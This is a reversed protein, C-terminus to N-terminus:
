FISGLLNSAKKLNYENMWYENRIDMYVYYEPYGCKNFITFIIKDKSFDPNLGTSYEKGPIPCKQVRVTINIPNYEKYPQEKVIAHLKDNADVYMSIIQAGKLPTIVLTNRGSVAYWEFEYDDLYFGENHNKVAEKIDDITAM